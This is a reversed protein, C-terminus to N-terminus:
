ICCKKRHCKAHLANSIGPVATQYINIGIERHGCKTSISKYWMNTKKEYM